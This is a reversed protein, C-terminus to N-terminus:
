RLLLYKTTRQLHDLLRRSRWFRRTQKTIINSFFTNADDVYIIATLKDSNKHLASLSVKRVLIQKKLWM